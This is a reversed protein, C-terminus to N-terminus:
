EYVIWKKVVQQKNSFKLVIFFLGNKASSALDIDIERSSIRTSEIPFNYGKSNYVTISQLNKAELGESFLIKTRTVGLSPNPVLTIEDEDIVDKGLVRRAILTSDTELKLVRTTCDDLTSAGVGHFRVFIREGLSPTIFNYQESVSSSNSTTIDNWNFGDASWSFTYSYPATSNDITGEFTVYANHPYEDPGSLSVIPVDSNDYDTLGCATLKIIEDNESRNSEGLTEKQFEVKTSSFRGIRNSWPGCSAMVTQYDREWNCCGKQIMFGHAQAPGGDDATGSCGYETRHHRCGFLHGIEHSFVLDAGENVEVIAIASDQDLQNPLPVAAVRGGGIDDYVNETYILVIDAQFQDRYDIIDQDSVLANIEDESSIPNSIGEQWEANTLAVIGALSLRVEDQEIKTSRLNSNFTNVNQIAVDQINPEVNAAAETYMILLRVPCGTVGSRSSGGTDNEQLPPGQSNTVMPCVKEGACSDQMSEYLTYIDENLLRLEYKISDIEIDAIFHSDIRSLNLSGYMCSDVTTGESCYHISILDGGWFYDGNAWEQYDKIQFDYSDGGPIDITIVGNQQVSAPDNVQAAFMNKSYCASDIIDYVSQQASDLQSFYPDIM